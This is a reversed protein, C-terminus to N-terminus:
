GGVGIRCRSEDGGRLFQQRQEGVGVGVFLNVSFESVFRGRGCNKAIVGEDGMGDDFEIFFQFSM